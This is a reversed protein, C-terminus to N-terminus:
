SLAEVLLVLALFGGIAGLTLGSVFCQFKSERGRLGLEYGTEFLSEHLDRQIKVLDRDM